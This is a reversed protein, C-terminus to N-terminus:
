HTCSYASSLFCLARRMLFITLPESSRGPWVANSQRSSRLRFFVSSGSTSLCKKKKKAPRPFIIRKQLSVCVCCVCVCLSVSLSLTLFINNNTERRQEVRKIENPFFVFLLFFLFVFLFLFSFSTSLTEETRETRMTWHTEIRRCCNILENFMEKDYQIFRTQNNRDHTTALM